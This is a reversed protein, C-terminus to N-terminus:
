GSPRYLTLHAIDDRFGVEELAARAALHEEAVSTVLRPCRRAALWTGATRVLEGALSPGVSEGVILTALHGAETLPSASAGLYAEPGRGRDVVWSATEAEMMRNAWGGSLLDRGRLPLVDRVRGPSTRNAIAALPEADSREFPRISPSAPGAPISGPADHVVFRERKLEEYGATAYLARAPANAELVTLVVYPKGRRAAEARAAEILRRALGRRRYAPDIVVTSLYGARAAFSLMTVGALRGGDDLVYLHFPSRRFARLIGLLLRIDLRYLRRLLRELGEPRTGLMREEEPFGIKLLAFFAKGDSRHFERLRM